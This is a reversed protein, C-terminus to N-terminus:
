LLIKLTGQRVNEYGKKVKESKIIDSHLGCQCAFTMLTLQCMSHM